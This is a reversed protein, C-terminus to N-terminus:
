LIEKIKEIIEQENHNNMLERCKVCDGDKFCNFHNQDKVWINIVNDYTTFTPDFMPPFIIVCKTNVANSAHMLGGETSLFLKAYKLLCAAERFNRIKHSINIVNKLVSKNSQSMQVIPINKYLNNVINQWKYLPYQKHKFWSTKAHPEIVVFEKPLEKVINEIYKIEDETFYLYCKIIPETIKFHNCRSVITHKSVDWNKKTIREPYGNSTLDLIISNNKIFSISPNNKWVDEIIIKNNNIFCTKKGTRKNIEHSVATWMLQGGIGM